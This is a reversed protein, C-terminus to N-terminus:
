DHRIVKITYLIKIVLGGFADDILNEVSSSLAYM